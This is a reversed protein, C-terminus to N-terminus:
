VKSIVEVISEALPWQTQIQTSPHSCESSGYFQLTRHFFWSICMVFDNGSVILTDSNMDFAGQIYVQLTGSDSLTFM